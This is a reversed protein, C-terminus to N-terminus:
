KVPAPAPAAGLERWKRDRRLFLRPSLAHTADALPAAAVERVRKLGEVSRADCFLCLDRAPITVIHGNPGYEALLGDWLADVLVLSAEFQGGMALMHAGDGEAIKLGPNGRTLARLNAVGIKHLEDLTIGSGELEGNNVYGYHDGRDLFYAVAFCGHAVRMVPLDSEPIPHGDPLKMAVQMRAGDTMDSGLGAHKVVAIAGSLEHDAVPRAGSRAKGGGKPAAELPADLVKQASRARVLYGVIPLANWVPMFVLVLGVYMLAPNGGTARAVERVGGLGGFFSAVWAVLFVAVWGKMAAPVCVVAGVLAIWLMTRGKRLGEEDISGADIAM